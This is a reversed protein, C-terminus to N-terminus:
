ARTTIALGLVVLVAGALTYPSAPEGLVTVGLAVGVVPQVNLFIAARPAPVLRLAHNWALYALATVVLALYVTAATAPVTWTPRVGLGWELAALPAMSALGWAISRATVTRADWRALVDRGFLSYSAFAVASLALLLDGRWHPFLAVTVGPVGDVVVVLTGVLVLVAGSVERGRLREGLFVPSLLIVAIPEVTILLAANTATSRQVGVHALAYAAGFGLVGMWAIKGADGRTGQTGPPRALFPWLVLTAGALRLLSLLAPPVDVLAVRQAVYATGYVVNALLLVLDARPATM